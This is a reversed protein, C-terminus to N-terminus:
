QETKTYIQAQVTCKIKEPHAPVPPPFSYFQLDPAPTQTGNSVLFHSFPLNATFRVFVSEANAYEVAAHSVDLSMM